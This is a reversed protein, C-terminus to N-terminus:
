ALAALERLRQKVREFRKRLTAAHRTLEDASIDEGGLVLAIDRWGLDRDVRLVLLHQDDPPLQARLQRIRDKVETRLHPLTSERVGAVLGELVSGTLPAERRRVTRRHLAAAAHRALMYCWTRPSCRGDFRPLSRWLDEAFASFAETADRESAATAHLWGLVEAGYARIAWETAREFDRTELAERLAAEAAADTM